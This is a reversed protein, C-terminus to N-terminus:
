IFNIQIHAITISLPVNCCEYVEFILKKDLRKKLNEYYLLYNTNSLNAGFRFGGVLRYDEFLDSMGYKIYFSFGPQTNEPGVFSQYFQSNFSNDIQTIVYCNSIYTKKYDIYLFIQTLFDGDIKIYKLFQLNSFISLHLINRARTIM